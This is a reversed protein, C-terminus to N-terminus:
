YDLLLARWKVSNAQHDTLSWQTKPPMDSKDRQNNGITGKRIYRCSTTADLPLAGGLQRRWRHGRLARAPLGAPFTDIGVLL